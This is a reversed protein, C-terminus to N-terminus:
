LKTKPSTRVMLVAASARHGNRAAADLAAKLDRLYPEIPESAPRAIRFLPASSAIAVIVDTGFPEDVIFGPFAPPRPQGLLRLSNAPIAPGPTANVLHAVSGDSAMYDLQLYSDFDPMNVAPYMLDDQVLNTRGDRLAVSVARAESGFPRLLPRVLDLVACYPGEAAVVGWEVPAGPLAGAIADQLAAAAPASGAVGRLALGDPAHLDGTAAVCPAHHLAEAVAARLAAPIRVPRPPQLKLPTTDPGPEALKPSNTAVPGGGPALSGPTPSGSQGGASPGGPAPSGSGPRTQTDSGLTSGGPTSGGSIPGGLSQGDATQGGLTPGNPTQGEPVQGVPPRVNAQGSAPGTQTGTSPQRAGADAPPRAPLQDAGAPGAGGSPAPSTGSDAPGPPGGGDPRSAGANDQSATELRQADTAAATSGALGPQGLWVYGGGAVALFAAAAAAPVIWRQRRPAPVPRRPAPARTAVAHDSTRAAQLRFAGTSVITADDDDDAAAAGGRLARQLAQNFAGATPFRDAPKRAMARAVVQDVQPPVAPAYASPAPPASTLVDHMISAMNGEFPRRGTLLQFLVVGASYIDTRADISIGQFQEPSMYAPTGMITGAHTMTSSGIRAIGFDAIKLAGAETVIINAPKIDRHIVQHEHSYELGSLLGDMLPGVEALTPPAGGELMAKLTRGAAFEMVIYALEGTEAYDFVGVINPHHLRGAAQAEQQFRNLQEREESDADEPLRVTKIAVRRAIVPDWGEYVTGMAGRGLVSRIDYKGLKDM